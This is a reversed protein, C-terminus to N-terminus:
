WQTKMVQPGQDKDVFFIYRPSEEDFYKLYLMEAFSYRKTIPDIDTISNPYVFNGPFDPSVYFSFDKEKAM